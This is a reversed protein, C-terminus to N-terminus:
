TVNCELKSNEPDTDSFFFWKIENIELEYIERM